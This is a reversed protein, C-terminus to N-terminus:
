KAARGGYRAGRIGRARALESIYQPKAEVTLNTVSLQKVKGEDLLAELRHYRATRGSATSRRCGGM